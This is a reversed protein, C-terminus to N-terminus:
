FNHVAVVGGCPLSHMAFLTLICQLSRHLVPYILGQKCEGNVLVPVSMM